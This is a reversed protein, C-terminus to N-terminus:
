SLQNRSLSLMEFLTIVAEGGKNGRLPDARFTAQELDNVTLIGFAIPVGTELMLQMIGQTAGSAVFDFHPTDGRIIAGLAVIGEYKGSQIVKKATLPIEFAGPCWYVDYQQSTLAYSTIMREAGLLLQETISNNWRSVVIAIRETPQIPSENSPHLAFDSM